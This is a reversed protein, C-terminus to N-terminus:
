ANQMVVYWAAAVAIGASVAVLRGWDRFARRGIVITAGLAPLGVLLWSDLETVRPGYDMRNLGIYTVAAFGAVVWVIGLVIELVFQGLRPPDASM